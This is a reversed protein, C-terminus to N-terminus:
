CDEPRSRLLIETDEIAIRVLPDDPNMDRLMALHRELAARGRHAPPSLFCADSAM